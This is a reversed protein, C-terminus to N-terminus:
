FVMIEGEVIRETLETINELLEDAVRRAMREDEKSVDGVLHVDVAKPDDIPHGIQSLLRVYVEDASTEEYIERAMRHALVNYLKGVHNVPNKGAAAEMSMPRFPTILGNVRNGRGVSGDDGQEASTGTVTLYVSEREYDDAANVRVKVEHDSAIEAALDAVRDRLEEVVSIYHDIDDIRQSVMAAAVTLEIEDGERLAMVKVDEGVEPLDKKLKQSNIERETEYVLRETTTLPAYGVGFSTDNALPVEEGREFVDRLDASGHGIKPEIVVHKETDLHRVTEELYETAAELAITGVPIKEDGVYATARGTVLIYIPRIVEGGGFEPRSEGAVIQVEDTNHHLIRGFREIYERCLARSVSEAIGDALSDPHGVGKREVIEVETETFPSREMTEVVINRAM